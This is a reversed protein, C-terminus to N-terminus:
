HDEKLREEKEKWKQKWDSYPLVIKVEYEPGYGFHGTVQGAVGWLFPIGGLLLIVQM